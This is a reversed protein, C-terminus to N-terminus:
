LQCNATAINSKQGSSKEVAQFELQGGGAANCVAQAPVAVNTFGGNPDTKTTVQSQSNPPALTANVYITIANTPTFRAGTVYFINDSGAEVSIFFPKPPPPPPIYSGLSSVYPGGYTSSRPAANTKSSWLAAGNLYIVLNGDDQCRLSAGPHGQTDSAWIAENAQNYLVLNGDTQMNCRVAGKGNTGSAWIVKTYLAGTLSLTAPLSSDIIVYLVLNGDSQFVLKFASTASMLVDGANLQNQARGIPDPNPLPTSSPVFDRYYVM